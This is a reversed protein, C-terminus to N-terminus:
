ENAGDGAPAAQLAAIVANIYKWKNGLVNKQKEKPLGAAKAFADELLDRMEEQAPPTRHPCSSCADLMAFTFGMQGHRNEREDLCPCELLMSKKEDKSM